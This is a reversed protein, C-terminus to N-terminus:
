LLIKKMFDKHITVPNIQSKDIKVSSVFRPLTRLPLKICPEQSLSPNAQFVTACLTGLEDERKPLLDDDKNKKMLSDMHSQGDFMGQRIGVTGSSATVPKCFKYGCRSYFVQKDITCLYAINFGKAKCFEETKLMLYKGIGKGRVDPHIVVSEIWIAQGASPIQSLKVHGIVVNEPTKVLAICMPFSEKSSNLTRYRLTESRPWEENLIAVCQDKFNSKLEESMDAHIPILQLMKFISKDKECKKM